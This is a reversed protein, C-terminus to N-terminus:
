YANSSHSSHSDHSDHSSHSDHNQAMQNGQQQQNLILKPALPKLTADSPSSMTNTDPLLLVATPASANAGTAAITGGVLVALKGAIRGLFKKNDSLM